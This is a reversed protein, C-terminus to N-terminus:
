IGNGGVTGRPPWNEAPTCHHPSVSPMHVYEPLEFESM